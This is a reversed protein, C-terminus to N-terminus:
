SYSQLPCKGEGNDTKPSFPSQTHSVTYRACLLVETINFTNENMEQHPLWFLPSGFIGM